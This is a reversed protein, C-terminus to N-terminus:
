PTVSRAAPGVGWLWLATGLPKAARRVERESARVPPTDGRVTITMLGREWHVSQVHAAPARARSLWDFDRLADSLTRGDVGVGQLFHAERREANVRAALLEARQAQAELAQLRAERDAAVGVSGLAAVVCLALPVAVIALQRLRALLQKRRVEASLFAVKVARGDILVETEFATATEVGRLYVAAFRSSKGPRWPEVRIVRYRLASLHAPAAMRAELEAARVQDWPWGGPATLSRAFVQPDRPGDLDPGAHAGTPMLNM